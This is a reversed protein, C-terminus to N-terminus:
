KKVVFRYSGSGLLFVTRGDPRTRAKQMMAALPRGGETMNKVDGPLSVEATTNPPVTIAWELTGGTNRWESKIMGYKTDLSAKVFDLGEPFIPDMIIKKFAVQRDDTRIGALYEYYWVLLDGLLMQHNGSNMMPNAADGNWLEWITTAGKGVMYGWSPYTTNTALKYALDSAGNETLGRMLWMGGIIGSNVHDDFEKLRRRINQFIAPRDAAPALGFYLPLLNATVTNNAYSRTDNHYYRKNFATQVRGAIREFKEEDARLGQMAAYQKMLGLCHYYYAAALLGGETMRSSDKTWILDLSEPPVCWDGYNDKLVLDNDHYTDWMYLVWKKMAPYQKKISEQDGFQRRLMDPILIFASPYTVNDAYRDWFSPAIDPLSGNEKQADRIDDLWKAYLRSNDFLFSEGYSSIVRDGLWGVREDRQPCDTPMGRYNGRITWYANKYVANITANSTRLSGITPVNDYVVKGELDKPDPPNRLGEIEVFRFGHYTFRPEWAEEGGGKLIYKDTVRANRMNALYLSDKGKMTEAFRMRITDGKQGKVKIALWGVMNQGMDLIYSGRSTTHVSIPHLVERVRINENPQAAVRANGSPMPQVTKWGRDDYGPNNWGTLEKNADYEEGDFESNSVIPGNGTVKWSEDSNVWAVSGDTYQLRVQLLVKPLGYGRQPIGTLPDPKGHYNRMGFFRGNGVIVGICNAGPQLYGAVDYTNYYVKKDYESVTPALVDVGVKKGNLYLEYLGMGSIYATASSIKKDASFEKRLHRAALRTFTSDPQDYANFSNLGIWKAHWGSPQLFGTSWYATPSTVEEGSSTWIKVKWYYARHAVLPKGNYVIDLSADSGIKGSDWIDAEDKALATKSSAVLLRYALQRLNRADSRIKWSFRPRSVDSGLLSDRGEVTLAYVQSAAAGGTLRYVYSLRGMPMASGTLYYDMIDSPHAIGDAAKFYIQRTAAGAQLTRRPISFQVINGRVVIDAKGVMTKKHDADLRSITAKGTRYDPEVAYEYGKWGKIALDDKGILLQIAGGPRDNKVLDSGAKILFYFYGADHAVRIEQLSNEPPPVTYTIKQTVGYYDRGEAKEDINRYVATARTWQDIGSKIDITVPAHGPSLDPMGKYQRINKILQIYFADEYGGRMPEIDRSYEKNAADCLMYEDGYPQKYAIWENWGGVFVTDPDVELAHDWQKQFFGGRDIDEKKNQQTAPDWGRGWNVWGSTISRSMPVKPHSAVTVSMINGHLPQPYKWEVWPFGDEYTNDFPWQPKKFYFFDKLEVSYPVPKYASDRRSLAEAVDDEMKTYAIIMPKGDVRYWAKPYLGPKYLERYLQEATEFSRSHTYFVVKPPSWGQAILDEIVRLVKEYVNRYTVRNTLDFVIFDIGATTLMKMQRRIVWEDASNYYGWIPEGWFHAQGNPSISDNLYKFDYLLKLGNPRASIATADYVGTAYPQGIWPWYFIGVQKQPKYGGIPGFSRGFQDIGVTRAPTNNAATEPASQAFVMVPLLSLVILAYRM